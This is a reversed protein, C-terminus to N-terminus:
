ILDMPDDPESSSAGILDEQLYEDARSLLLTWDRGHRWVFDKLDERTAHDKKANPGHLAKAIALRQEDSVEVTESIKVRM